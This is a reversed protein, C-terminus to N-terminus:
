LCEACSSCVRLDRLHGNWHRTGAISGVHITSPQAGIQGTGAGAAEGSALAGDVYIALAGDTSCAVVRHQGASPATATVYREAGAADAVTLRLAGTDVALSARNAGSAAGIALLAPNDTATWTRGPGPTATIALAWTPGSISNPREVNDAARTVPTGTTPIYSSPTAGQKHQPRRVDVSLNLLLGNYYNSTGNAPGIQVNSSGSTATYTAFVRCAGDPLRMTGASVISAHATTVTCTDVDYYVFFDNKGVSFNLFLSSTTGPRADLSATYTSSVDIETISQYVYHFNKGGYNALLTTWGDPGTTVSVYQETWSTLDETNPFLNTRAGEVLVGSEEVRAEGAAATALTDPNTCPWYTATSARTLTAGPILTSLTGCGPYGGSAVSARYRGAEASRNLRVEDTPRFVAALTLIAVLHASM